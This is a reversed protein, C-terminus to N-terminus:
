AKSRAALADLYLEVGRAIVRAGFGTAGKPGLPSDAETWSPGAIDLHAWATDDDVFEALFAAATSAGAWRGAGLNKIDAIPSEIMKHHEEILPMPWVREFVDGGAQQLAEGLTGDNAFMGAFQMGLAVVCAGTLTAADIILDPKEGAAYHLGDALILRGEADTNLVEVTKGSAMTLVDGPRIADGDPMNEVTPVVVVVRAAVDRRALIMAAGLVAAAGGMDGKMEHMNAGPKLSIGGTDFTVGKGVLVVTPVKARGKPAREMVVLKSEQKSGQGVGLIGGMGAKRLWAEGHVACAYGEARAIRRATAALTTPTLDNPAMNVLRRAELCGAALDVGENLGTKIDAAAVGDALCMKVTAPDPRDKATKVKRSGAEFLAMEGGEACSRAVAAASFGSLTAWPMALAVRKAKLVRARKIATAISCRLTQLTLDDASGLGVLLVWPAKADGGPVTHMSNAAADFVESGNLGRLYGGVAKDLDKWPKVDPADDGKLVGIILLDAPTAAPATRVTTWRM